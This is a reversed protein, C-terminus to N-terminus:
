ENSRKKRVKEDIRMRLQNVIEPSLSEEPSTADRQDLAEQIEEFTSQGLNQLLAIYAARQQRIAREPVEQVSYAQSVQRTLAYVVFQNISVNENEAL